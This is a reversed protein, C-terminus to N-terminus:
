GRASFFRQSVPRGRVTFEPRLGARRWHAARRGRRVVSAVGNGEFRNRLRGCVARSRLLAVHAPLMWYQIKVLLGIIPLIKVMPFGSIPKWMRRVFCNYGAVLQDRQRRPLEGHLFPHEGRRIRAVLSGLDLFGGRAGLGGERPDLLKFLLELGGPGEVRVHAAVSEEFEQRLEEGRVLPDFRPRGVGTADHRSYGSM